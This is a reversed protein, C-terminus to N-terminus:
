TKEGCEPCRGSLNGTLNYGCYSCLGARPPRLDRWWLILTPVVSALFPMWPPVMLGGTAYPSKGFEPVWHWMWHHRPTLLEWGDEAYRRSVNWWDAGVLGGELGVRIGTGYWVLDRFLSLSFVVFTAVCLVLALWKAFRRLRQEPRWKRQGVPGAELAWGLLVVLAAGLTLPGWLWGGPIPLLHYVVVGDHMSAALVICVTLALSVILGYRRRAIGAARRGPDGGESAATAGAM